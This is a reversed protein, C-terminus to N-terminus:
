DAYQAAVITCCIKCMCFVLYAGPYIIDLNRWRDSTLCALFSTERYAGLTACYPCDPEYLGQSLYPTGGVQNVVDLLPYGGVDPDAYHGTHSAIVEIETKHLDPADNARDILRQVLPPFPQLRYAVPRLQAGVWEQWAQWLQPQEGMGAELIEIEDDHIVRYALDSEFVACRPCYLLPLRRLGIEPFRLVPDSLDLTLFLILPVKCNPCDAGHLANPGGLLHPGPRTPSAVLFCGPCIERGM